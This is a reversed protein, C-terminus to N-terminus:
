ASVRRPERYQWLVLEADYAGYENPHRDLKYVAVGNEASIRVTHGQPEYFAHGTNFLSLTEENFAAHDPVYEFYHRREPYPFGPGEDWTVVIGEPTGTM